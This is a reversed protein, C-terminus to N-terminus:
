EVAFTERRRRRQHRSTKQQQTQVSGTPAGSGDNDDDTQDSECALRDAILRSTLVFGAFVGLAGFISWVHSTQDDISEDIVPTADTQYDDYDENHQRRTGGYLTKFVSFINQPRSHM